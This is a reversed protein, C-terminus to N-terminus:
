CGFDRCLHTGFDSYATRTFCRACRLSLRSLLSLARRVATMLAAASVLTVICDAASRLSSGAQTVAHCRPPSNESLFCRCRCASPVIM